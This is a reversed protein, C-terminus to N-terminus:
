LQLVIYRSLSSRLSGLSCSSGTASVTISFGSSPARNVFVALYHWGTAVFTLNKTAQSTTISDMFLACTQMWGRFSVQGTALDIPAAPPAFRNLCLTYSFGSSVDTSLQLMLTNNVFAPFTLANSAQSGTRLNPFKFVNSWPAASSADNVVLLLAFAVLVACQQLHVMTSSTARPPPFSAVFQSHHLTSSMAEASKEPPVEHQSTATM